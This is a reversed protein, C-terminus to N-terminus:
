LLYNGTIVPPEMYLIVLQWRGKRVALKKHGLSWREMSWPWFSAAWHHERKNREEWKSQCNLNSCLPPSPSLHFYSTQTTESLCLFGTHTHSTHASHTHVTHVCTCTYLNWSTRFICHASERTGIYYSMTNVDGGQLGERDRSLKGCQSM